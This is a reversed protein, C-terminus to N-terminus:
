LRLWIGGHLHWRGDRQEWRHPEYRYGPRPREWYGPVWQHRGGAWGWYGSIWVAGPYPMVPVVEQYPPPPATEVVAVPPSSYVPAYARHAPVVVCGGLSALGVVLLSMLIRNM